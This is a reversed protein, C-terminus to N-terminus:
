VLRIKAWVYGSDEVVEIVEFKTGAKLVGMSAASTNPASRFQMAYDLDGKNGAKASTAYIEAYPRLNGKKALAIYGTGVDHSDEKTFAIGFHSLIPQIPSMIAIRDSGAFLQAVPNGAANLVLSSSDGGDCFYSDKNETFIQNEFYGVQDGRDDYTVQATVNVAIVKARQVGTTRGSKVLEEGIKAMGIKASHAGIGFQYLDKTEIDDDLLVLASDFRNLHGGFVLECVEAAEGIRDRDKGGDNPSPQIIPEGKKIGEWHPWACHANQLAYKKGDKYVIAALTCATGQSQIASIGGCIPRRKKRHDSVKTADAEPAVIESMPRLKGVEIVDTKVGDIEKPVLAAPALTGEPLKKEVFVVISQEGTGADGQKKEGVGVAVVNEKALLDHKVEEKKEEVHDM